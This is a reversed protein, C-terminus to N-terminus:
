KSISLVIIRNIIELVASKRMVTLNDMLGSKIHFDVDNGYLYEIPLGDFINKIAVIVGGMIASNSWGWVHLTNNITEAKFCTKSQCSGIRYKLLDEPCSGPISNSLEIIINFKEQWNDMESLIEIFEDQRHRLIM